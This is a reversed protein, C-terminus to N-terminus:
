PNSAPANTLPTTRWEFILVGVSMAPSEVARPLFRAARALELARQDAKPDGCGPPLLTQSMVNGDASVLVQVVTNTLLDAAPWPPLEEPNLLSRNALDGAVRLTSNAPPPRGIALAVPPPLEPTPKTEFALSAFRNTGMFQAFAGGLDDLRIPLLRPPETWRFPQFELTPLKMWAAGAFSRRQPLAFLTPDNLALRENWEPALRVVLVPAPPRPPVPKRDSLAFILGLQAAFVVAIWSWRWAPSWGRAEIAVNNM